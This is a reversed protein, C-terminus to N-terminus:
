LLVAIDNRSAHVYDRKKHKAFVHGSSSSIVCNKSINNRAFYHIDSAVFLELEKHTTLPAHSHFVWRYM